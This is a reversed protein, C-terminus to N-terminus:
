NSTIVQLYTRQDGSLYQESNVAKLSIQKQNDFFQHEGRMTKDFFMCVGLLCHAQHFIQM